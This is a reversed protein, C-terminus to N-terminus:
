RSVIEGAYRMGVKDLFGVGSFAMNRGDMSIPIAKNKVEQKM